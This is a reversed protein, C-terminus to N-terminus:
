SWEVVRLLIVLTITFLALVLLAVVWAADDLFRPLGLEKALSLGAMGGPLGTGNRLLNLHSVEVLLVFAEPNLRHLDM